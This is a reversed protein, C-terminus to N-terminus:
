GNSTYGEKLSFCGEIEIANSPLTSRIILSGKLMALYTGNRQRTFFSVGNFVPRLSFTCLVNLFRGPCRKFTKYVNLKCVTKFYIFVVAFYLVLKYGFLFLRCIETFSEHFPSPRFINDFMHDLDAMSTVWVNCM